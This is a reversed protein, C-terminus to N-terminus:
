LVRRRNRDSMTDFGEHRLVESPPSGRFEDIIAGVHGPGMPPDLFAKSDTRHVPASNRCARWDLGFRAGVGRDWHDPVHHGEGAVKSSQGSLETLASAVPRRIWRESGVPIQDRFCLTPILDLM